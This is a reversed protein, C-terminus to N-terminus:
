KGEMFYEPNVPFSACKRAEKMFALSNELPTDRATDCGTNITFGKPSDWAKRFCERVDREVESPTGFLLSGAPNVNGSINVIGGIKNKAYALDVTNDIDVNSYGCGAISELIKSTDGCIHGSVGFPRIRNCEDIFKTSYPAIFEDFHQKSVVSGSAVPDAISVPIEMELFSRALQILGATVFGMAEHVADPNRILARLLNELGVLSLVGTFAGPLCMECTIEDKLEESLVQAVEFCKKAGPDKEVSLVSLDLKAVDAINKLPHELDNELVARYANGVGYLGYATGISDMGFVEYVKKICDVDDRLTGSSSVDGMLRGSPPGYIMRIPIRDVSKGNKLADAREKPTM